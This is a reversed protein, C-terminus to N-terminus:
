AMIFGPILESSRRGPKNSASSENEYVTEITNILDELLVKKNGYESADFIMEEAIEPDIPMDRERWVCILDEATIYSCNSKLSNETISESVEKGCLQLFDQKVKTELEEAKIVHAIISIFASFDLYGRQDVDWEHMFLQIELEDAPRGLTRMLSSLGERHLNKGKDCYRRFFTHLVQCQEGSLEAFSLVEIMSLFEKISAGHEHEKSSIRQMVSSGLTKHMLEIEDRTPFFGLDMVATQLQKIKIRRDGLRSITASLESKRSTKPAIPHTVFNHNVSVPQNKESVKESDKCQDAPESYRVFCDVVNQEMPRSLHPSINVLITQSDHLEEDLLEDSEMLVSLKDSHRKGVSIDDKMTLKEIVGDEYAAKLFSAISIKAPNSQGIGNKPDKVDNVTSTELATDERESRVRDASCTRLINQLIVSALFPERAELEKMSKRDIAWVVSDEVAFSAYSAPRDLFLCEENFFAGRRMTRLRKLKGSRNKSVSIVKGRQLLFLTHNIHGERYLYQGAKFDRREAYRWIRGGDVTGLVAEFIEFETKLLAKTHLKRFSDFLLWHLNIFSARELLSDEVYESAHDIDDFILVGPRELFDEKLKSATKHNM